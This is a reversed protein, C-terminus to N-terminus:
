KAMLKVVGIVLFALAILGSGTTGLDVKFLPLAMLIAILIFLWGNIKNMKRKGGKM